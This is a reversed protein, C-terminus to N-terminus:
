EVSEFKIEPSALQLTTDTKPLVVVRVTHPGAGFRERPISVRYPLTNTLAVTRGDVQWLLGRPEMGVPL